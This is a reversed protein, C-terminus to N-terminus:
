ISNSGLPKATAPVADEYNWERALSDLHLFVDAQRRLEDATDAPLGVVTVRVGKVQAAEVARRYDGDGSVLVIDEVRDAMVVIDVALDVQISARPASEWERRYIKTVVTYGNYDLWDVLRHVSSEDDPDDLLTTYYYIRLLESHADFYRQVRSFDLHLDARRASHSLNAGDIFVALRGWEM